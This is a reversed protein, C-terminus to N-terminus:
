YNITATITDAYSAAPALNQGTPIRGYVPIPQAVGNGVGAVEGNTVTAANGWNTTRNSDSYLIYQITQTGGATRTMKHATVTASVSIGASLGVVYPTGNTCTANLTSQGDIITNLVINVNGFALTTATISCSGIVQTTVSLNGTAVAAHGNSVLGGGVALM